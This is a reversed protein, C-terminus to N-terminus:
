SSSLTLSIPAGYRTLSERHCRVFFNMADSTGAFQPNWRAPSSHVSPVSTAFYHLSVCYKSCNAIGLRRIVKELCSSSRRTGYTHQGGNSVWGSMRKAKRSPLSTLCVVNVRIAHAWPVEQPRADQPIPDLSSEM